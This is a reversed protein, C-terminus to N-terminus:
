TRRDLFYVSSTCHSKELRNGLIMLVTIWLISSIIIIVKFITLCIMELSHNHQILVQCFLVFRGVADQWLLLCMVVIQLQSEFAEYSALECKYM